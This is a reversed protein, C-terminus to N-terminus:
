FRPCRGELGQPKACATVRFKGIILKDYPQLNPLAAAENVKDLAEKFKGSKLFEQAASLPKSAAASVAQKPVDAALVASPVAAIALGGALAAGLLIAKLPRISARM